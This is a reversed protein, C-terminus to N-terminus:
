CKGRRIAEMNLISKVKLMPIIFRFHFLLNVALRVWWQYEIQLKCYAKRFKFKELLFSQINSHETISRSGDNVYRFKMEELYYKNMTFILGYYPYTSNRLYKPDAKMTNYECCDDYCTNISFAVAKGTEKEFVVWYDTNGQAEEKKIRDVFEEKSISTAKMRYNEIAAQFIPYGVELMVEGSVREIEYNKLSKRVQNRVKTPLEQIGGFSDKIVFWFPASKLMDFDYINRLLFGGEKLVAKCKEIDEYTCLHPPKKNIWVGKYLIYDM